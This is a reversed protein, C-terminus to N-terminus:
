WKMSCKPIRSIRHCAQLFYWSWFPCHGFGHINVRISYYNPCFQRFFSATYHLHMFKFCCCFCNSDIQWELRKANINIDQIVWVCVCECVRKGGMTPTINSGIITNEYEGNCAYYTQVSFFAKLIHWILFCHFAVRADISITPLPPNFSSLSLPLSLIFSLFICLLLPVSQISGFIPHVRVRMSTHDVNQTWWNQHPHHYHWNIISNGNIGKYGMGSLQNLTKIWQNMWVITIDDEYRKVFTQTFSM